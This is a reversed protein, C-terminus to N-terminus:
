VRPLFLLIPLAPISGMDEQKTLLRELRKVMKGHSRRCLPIFDLPIKRKALKLRRLKAVTMKLKWYINPGQDSPGITLDTQHLSKNHLTKM